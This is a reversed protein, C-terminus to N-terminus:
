IFLLFCVRVRKQKPAEKLADMLNQLQVTVATNGGQASTNRATFDALFDELITYVDLISTPTSGVVNIRQPSTLPRDM